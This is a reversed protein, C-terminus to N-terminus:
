FEVRADLISYAGSGTRRDQVLGGSLGLQMAGLKVGTLHVGGRWQSYFNDGLVLIEPGAFVQGMIAMGAKLRAYYANHNTSYTFNGSVMTRDTPNSYFDIGTKFGWSTGIVNNNPDPRSLTRNQMEVGGFVAVTTGASVWEYGAMLYGTAERGTVKGVGAATSTYGYSGSLGGIRLRFGTETKSSFPSITGILSGHLTNKTTGALSFDVSAGFQRVSYPSSAAATTPSGTYWDAAMAAPTALPVFLVLAVPLGSRM